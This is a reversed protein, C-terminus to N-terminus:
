DALSFTDKGLLAFIRMLIHRVARAAAEKHNRDKDSTKSFVGKEM